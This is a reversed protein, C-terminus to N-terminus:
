FYFRCTGVIPPTYKALYTPSDILWVAETWRGDLTSDRPPLRTLNDLTPNATLENKLKIKKKESKEHVIEELLQKGNWRDIRQEKEEIGERM